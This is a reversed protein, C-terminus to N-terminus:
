KNVTINQLARVKGLNGEISVMKKDMAEITSVKKELLQYIVETSISVVADPNSYEYPEICIKREAVELYFAGTIEGSVHFQIAIHEFISRADANEYAERIKYILERFDMKCM